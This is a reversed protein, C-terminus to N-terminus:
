PVVETDPASHDVTSATPKAGTAAGGRTMAIRGTRMTERIGFPHLLRLLADIKEEDGAVEITVSDKSVDVINARFIDVIQMVEPRTAANSKVKVLALERVVISEASIDTVRVVDILKYLQKMVQEVVWEDGEVVFTMRSLGPSESHGVSLNSINFGRRSFLGAIRALVGPKDEVLATITHSPGRGNGAVEAM